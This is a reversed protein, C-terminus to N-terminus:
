MKELYLMYGNEVKEEQVVQWGRQKALRRINERSCDNDALVQMAKDATTDIFKKVELMPQPCSLGSTDIFKSM